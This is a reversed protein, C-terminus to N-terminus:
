ILYCHMEEKFAGFDYLVYLDNVLWKMVNM